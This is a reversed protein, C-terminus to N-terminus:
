GSEYCGEALSGFIYIGNKLVGDLVAGSAANRLRPSRSRYSLPLGGHGRIEVGSRGCDRIETHVFSDYYRAIESCTAHWVDRSRLLGYIRDLSRIDDHVNPRQRKGTPGQNQFHEQITIPLGNRYLYELHAEPRHGPHLIKKVLGKLKGTSAPRSAFADGGLNTPITVIRTEPIFGPGSGAHRRNIMHADLAFWQFGAAIIFEGAGAGHRYGPFKGGQFVIGQPALNRIAALNEESTERDIDAFEHRRLGDKVLTHRLGHFALEFRPALSLAFHLFEGETERRYVAYGPGDPISHQAALPMFITGRIEPYKDLLREKFFAYLSDPGDMLYGWDNHPGLTGDLSVAAPVLDDLMLCCPAQRGDFWRCKELLM